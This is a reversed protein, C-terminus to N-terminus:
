ASRQIIYNLIDGQSGRYDVIYIPQHSSQHILLCDDKRHIGLEDRLEDFLWHLRHPDTQLISEKGARHLLYEARMGADSFSLTILRIAEAREWKPIIEAIRHLREVLM